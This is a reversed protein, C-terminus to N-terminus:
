YFQVDSLSDTTDCLFQNRHAALTEELIFNTIDKALSLDLDLLDKAGVMKIWLVKPENVAIAGPRLAKLDEKKCM